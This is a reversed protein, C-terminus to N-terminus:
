KLQYPLQQQDLTPIALVQEEKPKTLQDRLYAAREAINTPKEPQLHFFRTLWGPGEAVSEDIQLAKEYDQLAALYNGMRDNLIGRNAYDGAFEPQQQVLQNLISLAEQYRKLQIFSNAKGRLAGIHDPNELLAQTYEQLARLYHADEFFTNGAFYADNGPTHDSHLWNDYAIWSIWAITLFIATWKLFSYQQEIRM